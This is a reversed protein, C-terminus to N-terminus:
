YFTIMTGRVKVATTGNLTVDSLEPAQKMLLHGRENSCHIIRGNKFASEMRAAVNFTDGFLGYRPNNLSGIVNSRIDFSAIKYAEEKQTM